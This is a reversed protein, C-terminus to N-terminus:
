SVEVGGLLAVSGRHQAGSQSQEVKPCSLGFAAKPGDCLGIKYIKLVLCRERDEYQQRKGAIPAWLRRHSM